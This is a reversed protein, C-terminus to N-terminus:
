FKEPTFLSYFCLVPLFVSFPKKLTREELRHCIMKFLNLSLWNLIDSINTFCNNWFTVIAYFTFTCPNYVVRHWNIILWYFGGNNACLPLFYNEMDLFRPDQCEYVIMPTFPRIRNCLLESPLGVFTPVKKMSRQSILQLYQLLEQQDPTM